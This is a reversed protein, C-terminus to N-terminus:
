CNLRSQSEGREHFVLQSVSLLVYSISRGSAHLTQARARTQKTADVAEGGAISVKTKALNPNDSVWLPFEHAVALHNTWITAQTGREFLALGVYSTSSGDGLFVSCGSGVFTSAVRQAAKIKDDAM